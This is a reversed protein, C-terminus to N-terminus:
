PVFSRGREVSCTGYGALQIAPCIIRRARPFLLGFSKDRVKGTVEGESWEKVIRADNSDHIVGMSSDNNVYQKKNDVTVDEKPLWFSPAVAIGRSSEKGIGVQYKRGGFM